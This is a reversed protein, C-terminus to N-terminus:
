GRRWWGRLRRSDTLGVVYAAGDGGAVEGAALGGEGVVIRSVSLLLLGRRRPGLDHEVDVEGVGGEGTSSLTSPHRARTSFVREGIQTSRTRSQHALGCTCTVTRGTLSRVSCM